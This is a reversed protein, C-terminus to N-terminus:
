VDEKGQRIVLFIYIKYIITLVFLSVANNPVPQSHTKHSAYELFPHVAQVLRLDDGFTPRCYDPNLSLKFWFCLLLYFMYNVM